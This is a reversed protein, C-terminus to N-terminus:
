KKGLFRIGNNKELNDEIQMQELIKIEPKSLQEVRIKDHARYTLASTTKPRCQNIFRHSPSILVWRKDKNIKYIKIEKGVQNQHDSLNNNFLLNANKRFLIPTSINSTSSAFSDKSISSSSSVNSNSRIPIRSKKSKKQVDLNEDSSQQSSISIEFSSSTINTSISSISALSTPSSPSSSNSDIGSSKDGDYVIPFKFGTPVPLFKVDTAQLPHNEALKRKLSTFSRKFEELDIKGPMLTEEDCGNEYRKIFRICYDASDWPKTGSSFVVEQNNENIVRQIKKKKEKLEELDKACQRVYIDGYTLEILRDYAKLYDEALYLDKNVINGEKILSQKGNEILYVKILLIIISYEFLGPNNPLEKGFNIQSDFNNEKM